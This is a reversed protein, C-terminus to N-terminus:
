IPPSIGERMHAHARIYVRACTRALGM